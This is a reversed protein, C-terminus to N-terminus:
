SGDQAEESPRRFSCDGWFDCTPSCMWGTPNPVFIGAESMKHVAEVIRAVRLQWDHGRRLELFEHKPGSKLSRLHDIRVRDTTIGNAQLLLTYMPLQLSNEYTSSSYTKGTKWDRIQYEGTEEVIEVLDPYGEVKLKEGNMTITAQLYPEVLEVKGITPSVEEAWCRTLENVQHTSTELDPDTNIDAVHDDISGQLTSTAIEMLEESPLSKGSEKKEKLFIEAATHVASGKKMALNSKRRKEREVYTRRYKEGCSMASMLQSHSYTTKAEM